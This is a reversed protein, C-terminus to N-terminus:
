ALMINPFPILEFTVNVLLRLKEEQATRVDHGAQCRFTAAQIIPQLSYLCDEKTDRDAASNMEFKHGGNRTAVGTKENM